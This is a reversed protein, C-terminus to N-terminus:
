GNILHKRDPSRDRLDPGGEAMCKLNTLYFAWGEKCGIYANELLAFDGTATMHQQLEVTVRGDPHPLLRIDVWGRDQYWGIRLRQPAEVALITDEETTEAPKSSGREDSEGTCTWTLHLKLGTEFEKQKPWERKDATFAQARALFWRELGACTSLMKWLDTQSARVHIAQTFGRWDRATGTGSLSVRFPKAEFSMVGGAVCPDKRMVEGASDAADRPFVVVGLGGDETPGALTVRGERVLSSMYEFHAALASLEAVTPDLHFGARTPRLLVLTAM